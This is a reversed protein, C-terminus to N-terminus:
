LIEENDNVETITTTTQHDDHLELRLVSARRRGLKSALQLAADNVDVWKQRWTRKACCVTAYDEQTAFLCINKAAVRM